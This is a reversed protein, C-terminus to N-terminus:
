REIRATAVLEIGAPVKMIDRHLDLTLRMADGKCIGEVGRYTINGKGEEMVTVDFKVM